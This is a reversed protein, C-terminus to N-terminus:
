QNLVKDRLARRLIKGTTNKPLEDIFIIKDPIKYKALFKRCHTKLEEETLSGDRVVVYAQPTEGLKEDPVGIVAAEVVKPHEYLVEEVERPYVNYGGVIIMDKKRDVIFIYGDEDMYAIDGTYLWGDRITRATEEPMNLYGKMVNPGRVILEGVQGREVEVGEADVIKNEVGPINVGISGPKRVGHVPNFATAPAAESLGYGESIVKGFKKEFSHLLAVPLSAGGSICFRLSALDDPVISPTQMIFNYMTPVGAFVTAQQERITAAVEVPSFKPLIIMTAGLAVPGNMCVTMCFVHFMPLVTVFRDNATVGLYKALADANSAMNRQTLMAGKPQGTTGSTYLIVALDDETIDPRRWGESSHAIMKEFASTWEHESEGGVLVVEQLNPLTQKVKEFTPLLSAIAIAVKARSDHLIYLIEKWTYIPNIPVVAAGTLLIGYYSILFHPSNGLLLAVHDGKGVGKKSLYGAVNRAQRYLEDYTAQMGQFMYATRNAHERASREINDVLTM